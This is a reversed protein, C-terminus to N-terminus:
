EVVVEDGASLGETVWTEEKNSLGIQVYRKHVCGDSTLINVYYKENEEVLAKTPIILVNDMSATIGEVVIISSTAKSVDGSISNVQILSFAKSSQSLAKSTAVVTGTGTLVEKTGVSFTVSTGYYLANGEILILRVSEDRITGISQGSRITDGVSFSTLDRLVGSYPATIAQFDRKEILDDIVKQQTSITNQKQFIYYQYDLEKKQIAIQNKELEIDTLTASKEKLASLADQYNQIGEQYSEQLRQLKLQEEVLQIEDIQSTVEIIPTGEEVYEKNDVIYDDFLVNAGSYAVNKEIAFYQSASNLLITSISGITATATVYNSSLSVDQIFVIEGEELGGTIETVCGNSKRTSVERREKTEGNVVYVYAGETDSQLANIPVVLVDESRSMELSFIGYDGAHVRNETDQVLFRTRNSKTQDEEELLPALTAEYEKGNIMLSHAYTSLTKEPIYKDIVFTLNEPNEISCIYQEARVYAGEKVSEAFCVHGSCSAIIVEKSYDEKLLAIKEQLAQIEKQREEQAQKRDLLAEEIDFAKLRAEQSEAGKTDVLKQYDIQLTQINLSATQDEYDGKVQLNHIKNEVNSINNELSTTDLRVLETGAEVYQGSYSLVEAIRGDVEFSFDVCEPVVHGEYTISSVVDARVVEATDMAFGVPEILEPVSSTNVTQNGCSICSVLVLLTVLFFPSKKM